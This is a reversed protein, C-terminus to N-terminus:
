CAAAAASETEADRAVRPRSIDPGHGLHIHADVAGPMVVLGKVDVATEGSLTGPAAIAAICGGAVGIDAEAISGDQLVAHGGSLVTDLVRM